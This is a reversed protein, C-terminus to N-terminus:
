ANSPRFDRLSVLLYREEGVLWIKEPEAMEETMGAGNM